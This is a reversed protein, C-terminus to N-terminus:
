LRNFQRVFENNFYRAVEPAVEPAVDDFVQEVSPGYLLYVESNRTKYLPKGNFRRKPKEGKNVRLALGMNGNSDKGRKLNMLFARKLATPKKLGLSVGAM